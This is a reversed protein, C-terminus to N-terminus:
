RYFLHNYLFFLIPTRSLWFCFFLGFIIERVKRELLCVRGLLDIYCLFVKYENNWFSDDAVCCFFSVWRWGKEGSWNERSILFWAYCQPLVLLPVCLSSDCGLILAEWWGMVWFYILHTKGCWGGERWLWCSLWWGYNDKIRFWFGRGREDVKSSITVDSDFNSLGGVYRGEEGLRGLNSLILGDEILGFSKVLIGDRSSCWKEVM